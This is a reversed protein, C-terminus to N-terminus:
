NPLPVVHRIQSFTLVAYTLCCAASIMCYICVAQLPGLQLFVFFSSALVGVVSAAAMVYLIWTKKRDIYAIALFFAILYYIVGLLAIPVSMLSSYTSNLVQECGVIACPPMSNTFHSITLYLADLFGIFASFVLIWLVM